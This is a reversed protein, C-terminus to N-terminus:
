FPTDDDGDDISLGGGTSGGSAMEETQAARAQHLAAKPGAARGGQAPQQRPGRSQNSQYNGGGGGGSREGGDVFQMDTANVKLTTRKGGERDTWEDLSPRGEIFVPRGKELYQSATEAQKGWLTVEWWTTKEQKEGQKTYRESTAMSFTCFPTGQPTYKIEPDRGLNGYLQVKAFSM